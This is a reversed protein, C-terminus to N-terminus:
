GVSDLLGHQWLWGIIKGATHQPMSAGFQRLVADLTQATRLRELLPFLPENELFALPRELNPHALAAHAQVKDAIVCPREVVRAQPNLRLALRPDMSALPRLAAAQFGELQASARYLRAQLESWATQGPTGFRSSARQQWFPRDACWVHRYSSATWHAHRACTEILRDEFFDRGLAAGSSTRDGLLTHIAVAAQLSFRMAKEVGSSSIPDLAFAADGIKMRGDQWSDPALYPTASCMDIVNGFTQGDVGAFLASAACAARLREPPAGRLAAVPDFVLMIRYRLGPLSAGWLWGHELAETHTNRLLEAPVGAPAIDAWMAALRPACGLRQNGGQGSRGGADIIYRANVRKVAGDGCRLQIRWDGAGGGIHQVQAPREVHVGRRQALALLAADFGAREVIASGKDAIKEASRGRWLVRSPRGALHPVGALADNAGLLAIINQVGPTLAEGIQKRPWDASREVLMIRYGFQRLRLAASVGAPGAGVILADVAADM